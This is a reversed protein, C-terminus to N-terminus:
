KVLFKKGNHIYLHGKELEIVELGLLNYYPKDDEEGDITIDDVDASFESYASKSLFKFQKTVKNFLVYRSWNTPLYSCYGIIENCKDTADLWKDITTQEYLQPCYYTKGDVIFAYARNKGSPDYHPCYAVLIDGKEVADYQARHWSWSHTTYFGANWQVSSSKSGIALVLQPTSNVVSTTGPTTGPNTYATSDELPYLTIGTPSREEDYGCEPWIYWLGLPLSLSYEEDETELERNFVASFGKDFREDYEFEEEFAINVGNLYVQVPGTIRFASGDSPGEWEPKYYDGEELQVIGGKIELKWAAYSQVASVFFLIAILIIKKM